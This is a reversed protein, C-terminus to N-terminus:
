VVKDSNKSFCQALEKFCRKINEDNTESLIKKAYEKDFNFHIYGDSPVWTYILGFTFATIIGNDFERSYMSSLDTRFDFCFFLDDYEPHKHKFKWLKLVLENDEIKNYGDLVLSAFLYRIFEYSSLEEKYLEEIRM